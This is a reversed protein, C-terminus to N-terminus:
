ALHATAAHSLTKSCFMFAMGSMCSVGMMHPSLTELCSPLLEVLALAVMIGAVVSLMVDMKFDTILSFFCQVLLCGLLEFMGSLTAALVARSRSKTAAFMPGAVAMGEPINHLAMAIALPLGSKVGKLCTLYVAIGEPINHLSVSVLVMIGSFSASHKRKEAMGSEGAVELPKSKASPPPAPSQSRRSPKEDVAEDSSRTQRRRVTSQSSQQTVPTVPVDPTHAKAQENEQKPSTLGLVEAFATGEVEPLCCELLLFLAMGVFFAISAYDGITTQTDFMIDMFSLYLMVGTSFSMLHAVTTECEGMGCIAILGGLGQSAACFATFAVAFGHNELYDAQSFIEAAM